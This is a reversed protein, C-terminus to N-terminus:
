CAKAARDAVLSVSPPPCSGGGGVSGKYRWACAYKGGSGYFACYCEWIIGDMYVWLGDRAGYCESAPPAASAMPTGVGVSGVVIAATLIGARATVSRWRRSSPRRNPRLNM